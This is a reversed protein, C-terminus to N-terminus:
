KDGFQRVVEKGHPHFNLFEIKRKRFRKKPVFLGVNASEVISRFFLVDPPLPRLNIHGQFIGLKRV